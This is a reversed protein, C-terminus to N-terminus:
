SRIIKATLKATIKLKVPIPMRWGHPQARLDKRTAIYGFKEKIFEAAEKKTFFLAPSYNEFILHETVGDLKNKSRWMAGWRYFITQKM